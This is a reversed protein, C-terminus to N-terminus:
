SGGQDLLGIFAMLNGCLWQGDCAHKKLPVVSPIRLEDRLTRVEGCGLDIRIENIEFTM